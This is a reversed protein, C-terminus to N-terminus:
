KGEQQPKSMVFPVVNSKGSTPMAESKLARLFAKLNTRHLNVTEADKNNDLRSEKMALKELGLM